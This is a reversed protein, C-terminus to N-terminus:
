ASQQSHIATTTRFHQHINTFQHGNSSEIKKQFLEDLSQEVVKRNNMIHNRESQINSIAICQLSTVSCLQKLKCRSQRLVCWMIISHVNGNHAHVARWSHRPSMRKYKLRRRCYTFRDDCVSISISIQSNETQWKWPTHGTPIRVSSINLLVDRLFSRM